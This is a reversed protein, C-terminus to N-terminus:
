RTGRRLALLAAAVRRVQGHLEVFSTLSGDQEQVAMADGHTGAAWAVMAATSPWPGATPQDEHM